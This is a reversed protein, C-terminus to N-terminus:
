EVNFFMSRVVLATACAIGAMRSDLEDRSNDAEESVEDSGSEESDM